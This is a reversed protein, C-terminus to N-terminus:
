TRQKQSCAWLQRQLGDLTEGLDLVKRQRQTLTRDFDQGRREGPPLWGEPLSTAQSWLQRCLEQLEHLETYCQQPDFKLKQARLHFREVRATAEDMREDFEEALTRSRPQETTPKLDQLRETKRMLAQWASELESGAAAECLLTTRMVLATLDSDIQLKDWVSPSPPLERLKEHLRDAQDNLRNLRARLKERRAAASRGWCSCLAAEFKRAVWSKVGRWAQGIRSRAPPSPGLDVDRTPLAQTPDVGFQTYASGDWSYASKPDLSGGM